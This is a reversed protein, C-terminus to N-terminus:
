EMALFFLVLDWDLGRLLVEVMSLATASPSYNRACVLFLLITLVLVM